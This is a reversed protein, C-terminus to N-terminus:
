YGTGMGCVQTNSGQITHGVDWGSPDVVVWNIAAALM